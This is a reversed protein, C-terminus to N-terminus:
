AGFDKRGNGLRSFHTDLWFKVSARLGREEAFLLHDRMRGKIAPLELGALAAPVLWIQVLLMSVPDSLGDRFVIAMRENEIKLCARM